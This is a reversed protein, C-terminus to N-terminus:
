EVHRTTKQNAVVISNVPGVESVPHVPKPQLLYARGKAGWPLVAEGLAPDATEAPVAQFMDDRNTFPMKEIVIIVKGILAALIIAGIYGIQEAGMEALLLNQMLLILSFGAAFYMTLIWVM